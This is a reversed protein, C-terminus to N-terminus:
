RWLVGRVDERDRRPARGAGEVRGHQVRGDGAGGGGAGAAHFSHMYSLCSRHSQGAILGLILMKQQRALAVESAAHSRIFGCLHSGLLLLAACRSHRRRRSPPQWSSTGAGGAAATGARAAFSNTLEWLKMLPGSPREPGAPGDHVSSVCSLYRLSSFGSQDLPSIAHLHLVVLFEVHM